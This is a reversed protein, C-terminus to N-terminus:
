WTRAESIRTGTPSYILGKDFRHKCREKSCTDGPFTGEYMHAAPSIFLWDPATPCDSTIHGHTPKGSWMSLAENALQTMELGPLHESFCCM